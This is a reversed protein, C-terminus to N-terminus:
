FAEWICRSGEIRYAEFFQAIAPDRAGFEIPAESLSVVVRAPDLSRSAIEPLAVSDCLHAMDALRTEFDLAGAEPALFRYRLVLGDPAQEEIVEIRSVTQGSPVEEARAPVALAAALFCALIPRSVTVFPSGTTQFLARRIL